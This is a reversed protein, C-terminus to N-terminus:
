AAAVAGVMGGAFGEWTKKPSLAPTMRHRGLFRGTFYARYTASSRCSSPWPEAVGYQPPPWRLQVLFSPLLGLYAVFWM